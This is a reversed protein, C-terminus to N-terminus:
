LSRDRGPQRFNAFLIAYSQLKLDRRNQWTYGFREDAFSLRSVVGSSMSVVRAM